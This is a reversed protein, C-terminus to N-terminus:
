STKVVMVSCDAHHTVKNPVSGLVRRAGTMGKSGVVILEADTDKAVELLADAPDGKRSHVEVEIGESKALQAADRLIAEVASESLGETWARADSGAGPTGGIKVGAAPKYASVIALKRETQRALEAAKGVAKTASESGDTGVVILNMRM